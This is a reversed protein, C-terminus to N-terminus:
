AITYRMFRSLEVKEGFKQVASEILKQVTLEPNKIFEQELLEAVTTSETATAAAHMAIDRALAMFEANKAVFDTECLLEVM